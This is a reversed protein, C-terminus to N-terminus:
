RITRHHDFQLAKTKKEKGRMTGRERVQIAPEEAQAHSDDTAEGLSELADLALEAKEAVAIGAATSASVGRGAAAVNALWGPLVSDPKRAEAALASLDPAFAEIGAGASSSARPSLM